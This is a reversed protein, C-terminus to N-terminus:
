TTRPPFLQRFGRPAKTSTRKQWPSIYITALPTGDGLSLDYIDIPMETVESTMSGRRNSEVKNGDVTLLRSLYTHSGMITNTPIPNTPTLGFEGRGNPLEDSDSGRAYLENMADRLAMQKGIVPDEMLAELVSKQKRTKFFDFLGM